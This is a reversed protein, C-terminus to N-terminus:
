DSAGHGRMDLALCRYNASLEEIQLKYQEATQSWGPLMVLPAGSGAELYNLKVQDSTVFSKTNM